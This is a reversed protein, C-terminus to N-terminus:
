PNAPVDGPAPAPNESPAPPHAEQSTDSVPAPPIVSRAKGLREIESAILDKGLYRVVIKDGYNLDDMRLPSGGNTVKTQSTYSFEVNTGNDTTMRLQREEHDIQMVSGTIENFNSAPVSAPPAPSTVAASVPATSKTVDDARVPMIGFLFVALFAFRKM